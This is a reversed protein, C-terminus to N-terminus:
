ASKGGYSENGGSRYAMAGNISSIVGGGENEGNRRNKRWLYSQRNNKIGLHSVGIGHRWKM